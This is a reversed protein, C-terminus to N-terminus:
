NIAFMRCGVTTSSPSRQYTHQGTDADAISPITPCSWTSTRSEACLPTVRQRCVCECACVRVCVRMWHVAPCLMRMWMWMWPLIIIPRAHCGGGLELPIVCVQRKSLIFEDDDRAIPRIWQKFALQLVGGSRISDKRNFESDFCFVPNDRRIAM